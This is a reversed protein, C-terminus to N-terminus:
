AAAGGKSPSLLAALRHRQDETLPPAEAVVRSIYSEINAAALDRRARTIKEPDRTRAAVGLASAAARPTLPASLFFSGPPVVM